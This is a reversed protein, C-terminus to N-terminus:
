QPAHGCILEMHNCRPRQGTSETPLRYSVKHSRRTQPVDFWDDSEVFLLLEM